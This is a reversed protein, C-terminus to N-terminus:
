LEITMDLKFFLSFGTRLTFSMVTALVELEEKGPFALEFYDPICTKNVESLYNYRLFIMGSRDRGSVRYSSAQLKKKQLKYGSALIRIDRAGLKECPIGKRYGVCVHNQVALSQM